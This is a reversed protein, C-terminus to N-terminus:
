MLFFKLQNFLHKVNIFVKGTLVEKGVRWRLGIKGEKYKSMDGICYLPKFAGKGLVENYRGYRGTPDMEVFHYNADGNAGHLYKSDPLASRFESFSTASIVSM